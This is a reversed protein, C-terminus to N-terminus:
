QFMKKMQSQSVDRLKKEAMGVVRETEQRFGGRIGLGCLNYYHLTLGWKKKKKRSLHDKM